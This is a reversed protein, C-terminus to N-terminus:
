GFFGVRYFLYGASGLSGFVMMATVMPGAYRSFGTGSVAMVESTGLFHPEEEKMLALDLSAAALARTYLRVMGVNGMALFLYIAAIGAALWPGLTEGVIYAAAVVAFSTTTWYKYGTSV